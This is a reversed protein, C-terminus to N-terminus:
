YKNQVLYQSPSYSKIKYTNRYRSILKLLYAWALPANDEDILRDIELLDDWFTKRMYVCALLLAEKYETKITPILTTEAYLVKCVNQLYNEFAWQGRKVRDSSNSSESKILAYSSVIASIIPLVISVIDKLM